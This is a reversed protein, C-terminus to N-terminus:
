YMVQRGSQESYTKCFTHWNKKSGLMGHIVLVPSGKSQGEYKQCSLAFSQDIQNSFDRSLVGGTIKLAQKIGASSIIVNAALMVNNTM